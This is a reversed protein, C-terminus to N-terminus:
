AGARSGTVTQHLDECNGDRLGIGPVNATFRGDLAFTGTLSIGSSNVPVLAGSGGFSETSPVFPVDFRLDFDVFASLVGATISLQTRSPADLTFTEVRFDENILLGPCSM